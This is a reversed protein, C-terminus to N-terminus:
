APPAASPQYWLHTDQSSVQSTNTTPRLSPANYLLIPSTSTLNSLSSQSALLQTLNLTQASAIAGLALPLPNKLQMIDYLLHFPTSDTTFPPTFSLDPVSPCFRSPSSKIFPPEVFSSHVPQIYRLKWSVGRSCEDDHVRPQHESAERLWPFTANAVCYIGGHRRTQGQRAM